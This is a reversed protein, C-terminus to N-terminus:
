AQRKSRDYWTYIATEQWATDLAWANYVGANGVWPWNLGFGLAQGSVPADYMKTAAYRQYEKILDTRKNADFEKRQGEVLSEMKSDLFPRRIYQGKSHEMAFLYGDVDPFLTTLTLTIGDFLGKSYLYKPLWVTQYDVINTRLKFLGDTELMGRWIDHYRPWQSGYQGTTFYTLDAEVGNAYGAASLLKKAEGSDFLFNKGGDGIEKGKPDLYYAEEGCAIHSQVRTAVSLGENEYNSVNYVTDIYLDRDMLMSAARRVRDDLFPSGPNFGFYMIAGPNRSFADAQRMELKPLDKKTSLIDEARVVGSWINGARFQALLTAYENLIPRDYGDLFPLPKNYWNPNKRYEWGVSPTYKSLYWAGSGRMDTRPDFGGDAERPEIILYRVFALMPLIPAYPFALKVVVTRADPATVSEIPASPNISNTMDSRANSMASFKDWSFKVDQADLPRSNTPPRQDFLVGPRIKFTVQLGDNSVEWSEAADGEVSGDARNDFTGAKYKILRSYVLAGERGSQFDTAALSDMHTVDSGIYTQYIGGPVAVKTTNVLPALLGSTETQQAGGTGGGGSGGCGIALVGALGAGAVVGSQLARRRSIKRNWYDSVDRQM